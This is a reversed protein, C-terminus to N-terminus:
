GCLRRFPVTFVRRDWQDPSLPSALACLRGAVEAPDTSWLRVTQDEGSSAVQKGDPSFAVVYALGTHGTLVAPPNPKARDTVEWIRSSGDDSATAVLKGDPSFAVSSVPAAHGTLESLLVPRAPDGLDLLHVTHDNSATALTRGDPAFAVSSVANTHDTLRTLLRPARPDAVDWLRGSYDNSGTALLRGDPSFALGFIDNGHGSLAPLRVPWAPETTDWLTVTHDVGTVALVRGDPRFALAHGTTRDGLSAVVRAHAPDAVDWLRTVQDEGAVALVPGRPDYALTGVPGGQESLVGLERRDGLARLHVRGERDGVALQPRHPDFALTTTGARDAFVPPPLHWLWLGGAADGTAFMRGDPSFAARRAPQPQAMSTLLTGDAAAWLRVTQDDGATAITRGDPSFTLGRIANTHGSLRLGRVPRRVDALSFLDVSHDDSGTAATTGDASFAVARITATHTDLSALRVPPGALDWLGGAFDDGGTLLLSAHPAFVLSRVAGRHAPLTGRAVPRAPDGVDWVAVGGDEQGIALLRGGHSLAVATAQGPGAVEGARVPRGDSTTTWLGTAAPKDATALLGTVPDLALATVTAAGTRLVAGPVPEGAHAVDSFRTTGDLGSTVLTRGDASFALDTITDSHPKSSTVHVTGSASLLGGRAEPTDAVRYAALNLQAALSPDTLRTQGAESALQRSVAIDRERASASNQVVAITTAVGALVTLVALGAVLLRLRRTHRREREAVARERDQSATLFDREAGGLRDAHEAAWDAALVLRPGRYLMSPHRREAEWAATAEALQHHVRLGDRDANIWDRLRPWASLLAEHAITVTDADTTLLRASTLEGLATASDSAVTDLGAPRRTDQEREGIRVLRLLLRRAADRDPPTLAAYVQEATSAVANAIGGTRHYGAVTLTTGEREAWTAMLAHSLLPLAEADNVLLEVLGAELTLGAREAPGTIAARLQTETMPGVTVQNQRLGELLDPYRLCRAYFDARLSLVVLSGEAAIGALSEIFERRDREDDRLTFIEEFQDVVLVEPAAPREIVPSSAPTLVRVPRAPGAEALAPLLGARVVSSKGAGSPGVVVVPKRNGLAREAVALLERTTDERGFFWAADASGFAALGRYPCQPRQAAEALRVLLGAADLADDLQHALDVSVPRAGTELKSLYGRSYHVLNALDALSMGQGTRIRRLEAGFSPSEEM